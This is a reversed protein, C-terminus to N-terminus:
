PEHVMDDELAVIEADIADMGPFDRGAQGYWYRANDEDGEILHVIAHAWAALPEKSEQAIAHAAQWDRSRLLPITDALPHGPM